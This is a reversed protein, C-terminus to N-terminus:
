AVWTEPPAAAARRAYSSGAGQSFLEGGGRRCFYLAFYCCLYSVRTERQRLIQRAVRGVGGM